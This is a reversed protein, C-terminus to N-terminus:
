KQHGENNNYGFSKLLDKHVEEPTKKRIYSGVPPAKFANSDTNANTNDKNM